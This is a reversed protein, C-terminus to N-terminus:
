KTSMLDLEIQYRRFEETGTTDGPLGLYGWGPNAAGIVTQDSKKSLLGNAGNGSSAYGSIIGEAVVSPNISYDTEQWSGYTKLLRNIFNEDEDLSVPAQDIRLPARFDSSFDRSAVDPKGNMAKGSEGADSRSADHSTIAIHGQDSFKSSVLDPKGSNEGAPSKVDPQLAVSLNGSSSVAPVIEKNAYQPVPGGDFPLHSVIGFVLIIAAAVALVSLSYSAFKFSFIRNKKPQYPSAGRAMIRNHVRNFFSDWYEREPAHDVIELAGSSIEELEILENQCEECHRLHAELREFERSDMWGDLYIQLRKKLKCEKM